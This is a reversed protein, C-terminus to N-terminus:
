TAPTSHYVTAGNGEVHQNKRSRGSMSWSIARSDVGERRARNHLHAGEATESRMFDSARHTEKTEDFWSLQTCYKM